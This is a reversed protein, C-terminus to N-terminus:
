PLQKGVSAFFEKKLFTLPVPGDKTPITIDMKKLDFLDHVFHTINEESVSFLEPVKNKITDELKDKVLVNVLLQQQDASLVSFDFKSKVLQAFVDALAPDKTRLFTIYAQWRRQEREQKLAKIKERLLKREDDNASAYQEQVTLLQNDIIQLDAHFSTDVTSIGKDNFPYIKLIQNVYPPFQKFTNDMASVYHDITDQTKKVEEFLQHTV